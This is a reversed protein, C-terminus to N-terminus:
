VPLDFHKGIFQFLEFDTRNVDFNLQEIEKLDVKIKEGRLVADFKFNDMRQSMWFCHIKDIRRNNVDVLKLNIEKFGEIIEQNGTKNCYDKIKERLAKFTRLSSDAAIRKRHEYTNRQSSPEEIAAISGVMTYELKAFMMVLLGLQLAFDGITIEKETM